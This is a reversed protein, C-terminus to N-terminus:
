AKSILTLCKKCIFSYSWYGYLIINLATYIYYTLYHKPTITVVSLKYYFINCATSGFYFFLSGIVWWFAPSYKLDVYLEHKLLCYFYYLSYLVFLISMVTTTLNNKKYIGHTLIEYIYIIFLLTLGSIIISKSNVFENLISLFMISVFVMEFMLLINYIWSNPHIHLNGSLYLRKIYIGTMEAVCTMFLFLIMLRWALDHDKKLCILAIFFCILEITTNITFYGWM